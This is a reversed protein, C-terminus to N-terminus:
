NTAVKHCNLNWFWIMSGPWLCYNVIVWWQNTLLSSYYKNSDYPTHNTVKTRPWRPGTKYVKISLTDGSQNLLFHLNSNAKCNPKSRPSLILSMTINFRPNLLESVKLYQTYTVWHQSSFYCWLSYYRVSRNVNKAKINTSHQPVNSNPFCTTKM